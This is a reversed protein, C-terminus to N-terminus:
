QHGSRVPQIEHVVDAYWTICSMGFASSDATCFTKEEQGHVLHVAGGQHEAPLCIILTGFMRPTRETDKHPKFMAGEEYLLMKYLKARVNKFGGVVGLKEVAMGVVNDLWNQWAKNSFSVKSGDIEM